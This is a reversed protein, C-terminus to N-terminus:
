GYILCKLMIQIEATTDDESLTKVFEELETTKKISMRFLTKREMGRKVKTNIIYRIDSKNFSMYPLLGLYYIGPDLEWRRRNLIAFIFGAHLDPPSRKRSIFFTLDGSHNFIDYM